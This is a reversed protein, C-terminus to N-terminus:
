TPQAMSERHNDEIPEGHTPVIERAGTCKLGYHRGITKLLRKLSQIEPWDRPLAELEILYRKRADM